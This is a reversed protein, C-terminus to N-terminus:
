TCRWRPYRREKQTNKILVFPPCGHQTAGDSKTLTTKIHQPIPMREAGDQTLLVMVCTFTARLTGGSWIEQELTLSTNRFGTCRTTVIYDEDRVMEKVYRAEGGRIVIRPSNPDGITGINHVEMFRIRLREFWVFYRVNNVHNLSDLEDHHVRDGYALPAPTKLGAATQEAASLNTHYRLSM